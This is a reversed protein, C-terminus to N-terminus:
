SLVMLNGQRAVAERGRERRGHGNSQAFNPLPSRSMLFGRLIGNEVLTVRRSALVEDDFQYYGNLDQKGLKVMSPDDVVSLFSPLIPQGVKDAFTQGEDSGKQRQGEMRHGFIQHFFVGAARNGLIAPGSYPEA